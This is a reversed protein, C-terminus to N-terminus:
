STVEASLGKRQNAASTLAETKDFDILAYPIKPTSGKGGDASGTSTPTGPSPEPCTPWITDGTTKPTKSVPTAPCTSVFHTKSEEEKEAPLDLMIYNVPDSDSAPTRPLLPSPSTEVRSLSTAPLTMDQATPPFPFCSPIKPSITPEIIGNSPLSKKKKKETEQDPSPNLSSQDEEHSRRESRSLGLTAAASISSYTVPTNINVYYRVLDDLKAYNTNIDTVGTTPLACSTVPHLSHNQSSSSPASEVSAAVNNSSGNYIPSNIYHSSRVTNVYSHCDYSLSGRKKPDELDLFPEGGEAEEHCATVPSSSSLLGPSTEVTTNNTVGNAGNTVAAALALYPTTYPTCKNIAEQLQDFLQKAEKCSFAYIGPGTNCRRGCEFSFM